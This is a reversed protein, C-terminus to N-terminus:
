QISNLFKWIEARPTSYQLALRKIHLQLTELKSNIAIVKRRVDERNRVVSSVQNYDVVVSEALSVVDDNNTNTASLNFTVPAEITMQISVDKGKAFPIDKYLVVLSELEAKPINIFAMSIQTFPLPSAAYGVAGGFAEPFSQLLFGQIEISVIM